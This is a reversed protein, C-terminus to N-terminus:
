MCAALFAGAMESAIIPRSSAIALSDIFRGRRGPSLLSPWLLDPPGRFSLFCAAVAVAPEGAPAASCPVM